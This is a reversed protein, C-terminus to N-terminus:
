PGFCGFHHERYFILQADAKERKMTVASCNGASRHQRYGKPVLFATEYQVNLM